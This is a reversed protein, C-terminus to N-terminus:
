CVCWGLACKEAIIGSISTVGSKQLGNVTIQGSSCGTVTFFVRDGVSGVNAPLTATGYQPLTYTTGDVVSSMTVVSSLAVVNSTARTAKKGIESLLYKINSYHSEIFFVLSSTGAVLIDSGGSLPDITMSAPARSTDTPHVHGECAYKGNDIGPSAAGNMLPTAGSAMAPWGNPPVFRRMRMGNLVLWVAQRRQHNWSRRRMVAWALRAMWMSAKEAQSCGRLWRRWCCRLTFRPITKCCLIQAALSYGAERPQGQFQWFETPNGRSRREM